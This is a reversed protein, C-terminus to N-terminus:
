CALLVAPIDFILFYNLHSELQRSLRTEVAINKREFMAMELRIAQHVNFSQSRSQLGKWCLCSGRARSCEVECVVCVSLVNKM